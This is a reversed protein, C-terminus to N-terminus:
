QTYEERCCVFTGEINTDVVVSFGNGSMDEASYVFQGGANNMLM